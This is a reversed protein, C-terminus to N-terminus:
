NIEIVQQKLVHTSDSIYKKLMSVHFVNHVFAMEQPLELKYAVKGIREIIVYPGVYRPNLKGKKGFRMIGKMPAVKIFSFRSQSKWYDRDFILM